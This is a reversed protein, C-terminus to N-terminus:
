QCEIFEDNVNPHLTTPLCFARAIEHRTPNGGVQSKDPILLFDATTFAATVDSLSIIASLIALALTYTPPLAKSHSGIVDYSGESCRGARRVMYPLSNTGPGREPFTGHTAHARRAIASADDTYATGVAVIVLRIYINTHTYQYCQM